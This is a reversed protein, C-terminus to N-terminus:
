ATISLSKSDDKKTAADKMAKEMESKREELEKMQRELKEKVSAPSEPKNFTMSKNHSAGAGM